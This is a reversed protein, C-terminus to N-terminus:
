LEREQGHERSMRRMPDLERQMTHLQSYHEDSVTWKLGGDWRALGMGELFALRHIEQEVAPRSRDSLAEVFGYDVQGDNNEHRQIARDLETWATREIQNERAALYEQQSRKGLEQEVLEASVQSIGHLRYEQPMSLDTGDDRVARLIVHVHERDTNDHQIAVWELGTDLDKEMQAMVDRTHQQLDLRDWDEPSIVMRWFLHDGQDTWERVTDSISLGEQRSDWGPEIHGDEHGHGRELYYAHRQVSNAMSDRSANSRYVKVFSQRSYVKELGNWRQYASQRMHPLRGIWASGRPHVAYNIDGGRTLQPRQKVSAERSKSM